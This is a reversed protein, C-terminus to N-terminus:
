ARGVRRLAELAVAHDEIKDVDFAISADEMDVSGFRADLLVELHAELDAVTVSRRLAGWLIRPGLIRAMGIPNKRVRYFREFLGALKEITTGEVIVANGATFTGDALKAYTRKGGPFQAECKERRVISYSADLPGEGPRANMGGSEFGRLFEEYTSAQVLPVDSTTILTVRSANPQKRLEACGRVANEVMRDGAAVALVQPRTQALYDCVRPTGCVAVREVRACSELADLTYDVLARGNLRVLARDADREGAPLADLFEPPTAGGALVLADMFSFGVLVLRFDVVGRALVQPLYKFYKRAAHACDAELCYGL